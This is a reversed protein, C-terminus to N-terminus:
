RGQKTSKKIGVTGMTRLDITPDIRDTGREPRDTGIGDWPFGGMAVGFRRIGGRVLPHQYESRHIEGAHEYLIRQVRVFERRRANGFRLLIWWRIEGGQEVTWLRALNTRSRHCRNRISWMSAICERCPQHITRRVVIRRFFRPIQIRTNGFRQSAFIVTSLTTSWFNRPSPPPKPSKDVSNRRSKPNYKQSVNPGARTDICLGAQASQLVPRKRNGNATFRHKQSPAVSQPSSRFQGGLTRRWRHCFMVWCTAINM